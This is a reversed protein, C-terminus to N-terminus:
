ECVRPGLPLSQDVAIGFTWTPDGGLYFHTEEPVGGIMSLDGPGTEFGASVVVARSTGPKRVIMRTGRPPRAAPTWYMNVYWAEDLVPFLSPSGIGCGYFDGGELPAWPEARHMVFGTRSQSLAYHESLEDTSTSPYPEPEEQTVLHAERVVPGTAPMALHNGGDGVRAMEGVEMSCDGRSPVYFGIDVHFGGSQPVGSAVYTDVVVFWTGATVDARAHYNGRDVCDNPDLSRLIHVDVDVGDDERVAASLFGESPVEVQYVLEPGSEDTGPSCSYSDFSSRPSQSSDRDDGFPFASVCSRDSPCPPPGADPEGADELIGADEPEGADFSGSGSDAESSADALEGADAAPSEGADREDQAGADLAPGHTADTEEIVLADGCAATLLLLGFCLIARM